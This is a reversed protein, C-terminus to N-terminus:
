TSFEKHLQNYVTRGQETMIANMLFDVTMKVTDSYSHRFNLLFEPNLIARVTSIFIQLLFEPPYPRVNGEEKGQELIKGIYLRLKGTRFEDLKKWLLPNKFRVDNFFKSDITNVANALTSVVKDMKQLSTSDSETIEKIEGAVTNLMRFVSKEVLEDKSQFYKYITKKSIALESAIEDMSIKAFGEKLFKVMCYNLIKDEETQSM